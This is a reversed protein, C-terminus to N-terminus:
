NTILVENAIAEPKKSNIARRCSIIQTKYLPSKFADTVLPVAANSMLMKVNKEKMEACNKFLKKHNDIGFGDANYSVFSTEKEPAYPPDLYVFDDTTINQLADAYSQHTFIVDKVLASVAHIHQEDLIGPNTYNGFPVNFGHPGERYVGRFCTKNMFLFMASAPISQKDDGKLLNFKARIYYYYSEESTLAETLIIAKRNITKDGENSKEYEVIIRKVEKILLLPKTQINKYLGVLTSNIDSAYIKGNIKITGEKQRMLLGLLVSGGGLFPEYYNNMEQPFLELVETLIQTKGGVWKIFPKVSEKQLTSISSSNTTVSNSNLLKIIDEKKKGAYGKIKREKCIAKLEKQTKTTYDMISQELNIRINNIKLKINLKVHAWIGNQIITIITYIVVCYYYLDFNCM